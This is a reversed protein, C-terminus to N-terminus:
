QLQRDSLRRYASRLWSHKRAQHTPHFLSHSVMSRNCEPHFADATSWPCLDSLSLYTSTDQITSDLYQLIPHAHIDTNRTSSASCQLFCSSLLANSSLTDFCTIQHLSPSSDQGQVVVSGDSPTNSHMKSEMHIHYTLLTRSVLSYCTSGQRNDILISSEWDRTRCDVRTTSAPMKNSRLLHSIVYWRTSRLSRDMPQKPFTVSAHLCLGQSRYLGCCFQSKNPELDNTHGKLMPKWPQIYGTVINQTVRYEISWFWSVQGPWFFNIDTAFRTVGTLASLRPVVLPWDNDRCLRNTITSRSEAHPSGHRTRRKWGM